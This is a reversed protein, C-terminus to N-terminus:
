MIKAIWMVVPFFYSYGNKGYTIEQVLEGNTKIQYFRIACVAGSGWDYAVNHATYISGDRFVANYVGADRTTIIIEGGKQPADPPLQYSSVPIGKKKIKPNDTGPNFYDM